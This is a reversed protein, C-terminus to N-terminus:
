KFRAGHIYAASYVLSTGIWYTAMPLALIIPSQLPSYSPCQKLEVMCRTLQIVSNICDMVAKHSSPTPVSGNQKLHQVLKHALGKRKRLRLSFEGYIISFAALMLVVKDEWCYWSLMSLVHITTSHQNQAANLGSM